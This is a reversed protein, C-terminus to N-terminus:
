NVSAVTGLHVIPASGAPQMSPPWFTGWDGHYSQREPLAGAWPLMEHTVVASRSALREAARIAAPRGARSLSRRGARSVRCLSLSRFCPVRCCHRRQDAAIARRSQPLFSGLLASVICCYDGSSVGEDRSLRDADPSLRDFRAGCRSACASIEVDAGFSLLRTSKDSRKVAPSPDRVAAAPAVSRAAASPPMEGRCTMEAAM